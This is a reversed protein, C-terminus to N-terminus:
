EKINLRKFLEKPYNNIVLNDTLGIEKKIKLIRSDDALEWINHADSGIILRQRNKRVVEIMKVLNQIEIDNTLRHPNIELLVGRKCAEQSIKEIDVNFRRSCPHVLIQIKGSKMANLVAQTNKRVGQDRYVTHFHLGAMVYDLRELMRDTVDITGKIDLINAEIGKLIRIGMVYKPVRAMARFHVDSVPTVDNGPGHNSIGIIKMKMKKAQTIQELLTNQADESALTHIHLDVKLM